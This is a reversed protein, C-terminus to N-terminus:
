VVEIDVEILKERRGGGCTCVNSTHQDCTYVPNTNVVSSHVLWIAEIGCFKCKPTGDIM